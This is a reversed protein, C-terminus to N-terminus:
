PQNRVKIEEVLKKKQETTTSCFYRIATDGNDATAQITAIYTELNARLFNTLMTDTEVRSYGYSQLIPVSINKATPEENTGGIRDCAASVLVYLAVKSSVDPPIRKIAVADSGSVSVVAALLLNTLM